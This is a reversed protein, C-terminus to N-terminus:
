VFYDITVPSSTINSGGSLTLTVQLIYTGENIPSWVCGYNGNGDVSMDVTASGAGSVTLKASNVTSSGIHAASVIIPPETFIEGSTPEVISVVDGVIISVSSSGTRGAEDYVKIILNHYGNSVSGPITITAAYPNNAAQTIYTSDIYVEIKSISSVSSYATAEIGLSGGKKVVTNAAPNSIIVWPNDTGSPNRNVDCYETPPAGQSFYSDWASQWEEKPAKIYRYVKEVAFGLEIDIDRALRDPQDSCVNYTESQSDDQGPLKDQIFLDSIAECDNGALLGSDRCVSASVIGGPRTFRTPTYRPLVKDMFDIWIPRATTYGFSSSKMPSNDNNGAWIGTVLETTYGMYWVNTNNDNTGTKGASDWGSPPTYHYNKAADNILYVAREDAVRVGQRSEDKEYDYIVNGEKDEIKLIPSLPHYIGGRAFTAFGNTHEVLKVDGAGLALAAGYNEPSTFTTYGLKELTNLFQTVGVIEIGEVAPINLSERLAHRLTMLGHYRGDNNKPKYGGTFPVDVDLFPYAPYLQGTEFGTYYVMPKLSSGPQRLSVSVNVHPEFKCDLGLTCGEPLSDGFYDVSGVMALIQGTKPDISTLAANNAGYYDLSYLPKMGYRHDAITEEAIHQMDLDLSTTIKLGGREIESLTFPKGNNYNGKQLEDEIYFVFHPAEISVQSSKYVIEQERAAQIKEDTILDEEESWDNYKRTYSNIVDKKDQMQDLVYNQRVIALERAKNVDSAFLPSYVGPAQPLGALLAAEGLTLNEVEKGFYIRAATKVGYTNGGFGIENLYLQLVDHKEYKQEIRLSLIIEKIKREYSRESTLVTNKIMQQTITSGGRPSGVKFIEYLGAKIIGGLDVGKHTYFDIDEAALFAWQADLPVEEIKAIDRNEDGHIKYLEKGNRDYVYSTLDQGREFPEDPNPLESSYKAVVSLSFVTAIFILVFLVGAFVGVVKKVRGKLSSKGLARRSWSKKGRKSKLQKLRKKFRSKYARKRNYKVKYAM